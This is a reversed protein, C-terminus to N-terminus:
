IKEILKAQPFKLTFWTSHKSEDTDVYIDCRCYIDSPLSQSNSHLLTWKWNRQEVEKFLDEGIERRVWLLEIQTGKHTWKYECQGLYYRM